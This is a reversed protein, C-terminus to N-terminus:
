RRSAPTGCSTADPEIRRVAVGAGRNPELLIRPDVEASKKVVTMGCIVEDRDERFNRPDPQARDQSRFPPPAPSASGAIPFLTAFRTALPAPRSAVLTPKSTVLQAIFLTTILM